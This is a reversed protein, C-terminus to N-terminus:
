SVEIETELRGQIQSKETRADRLSEIAVEGERVERKLQKETDEHTAILQDIETALAKIADIDEDIVESLNNYIDDKSRVIIDLQASVQGIKAEINNIEGSLALM